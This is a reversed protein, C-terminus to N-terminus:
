PFIFVPTGIDAFEYVERAQGIDLAVCGGTAPTGINIRPRRVIEGSKFFYPLEHIGFYSKLTPHYYFAMWYPMYVNYRWSFASLSKNLIKFQGVPTPFDRGSSIRYSKVLEGKRFLYLKQASLDIEIYAPAKEGNTHPVDKSKAILRTEKSGNYRAALLASVDMAVEGPSASVSPLIGTKGYEQTLYTQIANGDIDWTLQAPPVLNVTIFTALTEPPLTIDPSSSLPERVYLYLPNGTMASVRANFSDIAREEETKTPLIIPEIPTNPDGFGARVKELVDAADLAFATHNATQRVTKQDQDLAYNAPNKPQDLFSSLFSSFAATTRITPLIRQPIFFSSVLM